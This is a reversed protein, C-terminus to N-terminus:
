YNLMQLIKNVKESIASAQIDHFKEVAKKLEDKHADFVKTGQPYETKYTSLIDLSINLFRHVRDLVEPHTLDKQGLHQFKKVTISLASENKDDLLDVIKPNKVLLSHTIEPYGLFVSLHLPTQRKHNTIQSDANRSLLEDVSEKSGSKTALFLATYDTGKITTNIIASNKELLLHLARQDGMLAALHIPNYELSDVVTMDAGKELLASLTEHNKKAVAISVLSMMAKTQNDAQHEFLRSEIPVQDENPLNDAVNDSNRRKACSSLALLLSLLHIGSLM